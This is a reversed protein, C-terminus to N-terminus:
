AANRKRCNARVEAGSDISLTDYGIDGSVRASSHLRVEAGTLRGEVSGKVTISRASLDGEIRAGEEVVISAAKVEGKVTGALEVLGPFQLEGTITSGNSIHSRGGNATGEASTNAMMAM